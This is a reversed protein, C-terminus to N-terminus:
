ADDQYIKRNRFWILLGFFIFGLGMISSSNTFGKGYYFCYGSIVVGMFIFFAPMILLNKPADEHAKANRSIVMEISNAKEEHIDKCALGHGLDTACEKCLGKNCVKCIGVASIKPHNFCNM